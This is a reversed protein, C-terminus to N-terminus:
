TKVYTTSEFASVLVCVDTYNGSSFREPLCNYLLEKVHWSSISPLTTKFDERLRHLDPMSPLCTLLEAQLKNMDARKIMDPFHQLSHLDVVKPIKMATYITLSLFLLFGILHRCSIVYLSFCFFYIKSFIYLGYCLHKITCATM